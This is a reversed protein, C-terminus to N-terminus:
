RNLIKQLLAVVNQDFMASGKYWFMLFKIMAGSWKALVYNILWSLSIMVMINYIPSSTTILWLLQSKNHVESPWCSM